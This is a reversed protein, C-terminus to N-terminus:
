KSNKKMELVLRPEQGEWVLHVEDYQGLLRIMSPSLAPPKMGEMTMPKRQTGIYSRLIGLFYVAIDKFVPLDQYNVICLVAAIDFLFEVSKDPAIKKTILLSRGIDSSIWESFDVINFNEGGFLRKSLVRDITHEPRMDETMDRLIRKLIESKEELRQDKESSRLLDLLVYQFSGSGKALVELLMNSYKNSLFQSYSKRLPKLTEDWGKREAAAKNEEEGFTKSWRIQAEEQAQFALAIPAWALSCEFINLLDILDRGSPLGGPIYLRMRINKPASESM